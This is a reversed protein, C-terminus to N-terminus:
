TCVVEDKDQLKPPTGETGEDILYRTVFCGKHYSKHDRWTGMLFCAMVQNRENKYWFLLRNADYSNDSNAILSLHKMKEANDPYIQFWVGPFDSQGCDFQSDEISTCASLVSLSGLIVKNM